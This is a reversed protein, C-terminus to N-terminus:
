HVPTALAATSARTYGRVLSLLEEESYPKGLYHDVGLEMAHERHKAAIRSTIMIIPLGALAADARINRALDFGDMRPMEIDSLVVAPREEQLRELAQLGDAALAVRYGERQLLRQTVRRVTISDDVVLVLPVQQVGPLVVAPATGQPAALSAAAQQQGRAQVAQRVQDGYVTSLAVPNYILVVAGSALVSMGALGPLRSLQPGLNKVVVEQNGLVEDVHVAVRQAASRLVVVPRNKAPPESSGASSQLLAGLWFFPLSEEGALFAGSTYARELDDTSTRRVIEVVSAPVGISLNGVRMMVVQTVATTLPLVLTFATGQGVGSSTEVRGGLAQVEARVVDMGIGRGALETVQEATTFGPRFILAAAESESLFGDSQLLGSAVAKDRIAALDLGRGDDRVQVSVDNGEQRLSITIHGAAPKGLAARQEPAEIGHVIANRLLHEFAPTMRDLVGRDMEISGGTIDLGVQKGSEKSSQRVVAYLRESIGEFEVMRTRLLDRQLERAQRGQAILDDETGELTRQLSRQVTAVDNVSEAMMRTLEQVRTFRDFELPDFAADSDKALALRSQMQSESQVEIDRLQQRLRDLNGTLDGLAGRMQDLRVDLRSRTIMVEGVQNVLRDLLAARVRVSQNSASRLPALAVVPAVVDFPRLAPLVSLPAAPVPAVAPASPAPSPVVATPLAVVVPTDVAGASLARLNDFTTQLADFGGLLPELQATQASHADIQEMASELRHALEGLRMAGALRSSGKLTHLARLAEQRAGTNDPRAVWQRLAGGLVPLLETAEEEFIPFLDPDIVDVADIDDDVQNVVAPAVFASAAAAALVPVAAVFPAVVDPQPQLPAALSDTFSPSATAPEDTDLIRQLAELLETSPSKLFGAAFQHLLRRIEEAAEGFVQAQATTGHAAQLQVHQLAHELTRAMESLAQFGVTASSGALSHAMAVASEPVPKYLELAWEALDMQLRRSWEDAENLYVNYLPIGIRLPGIVKVLDDEIDDQLAPAEAVEVATVLPELPVDGGALAQVPEADAHLAEAHAVPDPVASPEAALLASLFEPPIDEDALDEVEIATVAEVVPEPESPTPHFDIDTLEDLSAPRTADFAVELEPEEPIETDQFDKFELSGMDDLPAPETAALKDHSGLEDLSATQTAGFADAETRTDLELPPLPTQASRVAQLTALEVLSAPRTAAFADSTDAAAPGVPLPNPEWDSLEAIATERSGIDAPDPLEFDGAYGGGRPLTLAVQLGDLRMANAATTFAASEWDDAQGEGIDEAWLGFGRLADGALKLLPQQAPKQEALWANLLQEMSWAAEGFETLGVMRSSGKLTHFARRLTTQESLDAPNAGLAAVAALGNVVVERVEELFIDILDDEELEEAQPVEPVEAQAPAPVAVETPQAPADETAFDMSLPLFQPEVTAVQAGGESVVLTPATEEATVEPAPERRRAVLHLEGLEEDYVFLTRAMSRQYSLMDIMFGLAGLSNGIKEFSAQSQTDTAGGQLLFGEVTERMRAVALAAQDLGLLSLVGRMQAFKDPVPRLPLVDHPSRFFQDMLKEVEGLATRLEGVVSGMTQSDSVSRYLDEMWSELPESIGSAQARQLRQALHVARSATQGGDTGLEEFAAQLYLVATAVEMALAPAPPEGSAVVSGIVQTLAEALPASDPRLKNLSDCVLSFQDAAPRLKNRDGGAVSSWTETVTAIRKKAQALMAPDFRGFRRVEYDLPTFRDLRFATRVAQLAPADAAAAAPTQACFFLIDQMLRDSVSNDGRVFGAYQLLVRSAVRKVYVDTPLLGAALADFCGAATKWFIRAAGAPQAAAFGLSLDRLRAAAQPDGNKVVQLVSQDLQARVQTGYPLPLHVGADEPEVMRREVPWLDAPHIRESGALTLMDRYHPFLALAGVPRGAMVAELFECLAFSTKEVQAAASETCLQPNQTFRQVVAEMAKLVIAVERMGVMEVAGTSSHLQQRALRLPGTDLGAIDARDVRAAEQAFRKLPRVAADLTRRLEDLVWALPGLDQEPLEGEVSRVADLHQM